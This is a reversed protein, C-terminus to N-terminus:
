CLPFQNRPHRTRELRASPSLLYKDLTFLYIIRGQEEIRHGTEKRSIREGTYEM